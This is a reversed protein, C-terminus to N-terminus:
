LLERRRACAQVAFACQRGSPLARGDPMRYTVENVRANTMVIRVDCADQPGLASFNLGVAWPPSLTTTMGGAYTWIETGEGLARRTIPEGMCAVIDRKSLGIVDQQAIQDVEPREACASMTLALLPALRIAAGTGM